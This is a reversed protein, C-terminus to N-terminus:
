AECATGDKDRDLSRYNEWYVARARKGYAPRGYGAKVQKNAAKKSKAVGHKFDRHLADCNAYSKAAHAPAAVGVAVALPSLVLAAAIVGSKAKTFMTSGRPSSHQPFTRHPCRVQLRASHSCIGLYDELLVQDHQLRKKPVSRLGVGRMDRIHARFPSSLARITAEIRDM